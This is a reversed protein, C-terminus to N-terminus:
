RQTLGFKICDLTRHPEKFSHRFGGPPLAQPTREKITTAGDSFRRSPRLFNACILFIPLTEVEIVMTWIFGRM